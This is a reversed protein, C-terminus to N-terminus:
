EIARYVKYNQNEFICRYKHEAIFDMILDTKEGSVIEKGTDNHLIVTPLSTLDELARNLADCTNSPIEPWTTFIASPVDLIYSLGPADGWFIVPEKGMADEQWFSILEGLSEANIGTTYMGKLVFSNEVLSDREEGNIGDRFVYNCGFLVGQVLTMLIVTAAFAQLPFYVARDKTRGWIRYCVWLTYPAILFLNNMNQYTYNNSGIPTVLIILLVIMALIREQKDGSGSVYGGIGAISCIVSLILFLMMWQFISGENYYRLSFMGQGLYFRLLILIGICYLLKKLKEYHGKKIYFMISGAFICPIMYAIWKLSAAYASAIDSIMGILTYDSAEESVGALGSIMGTFSKMGYKVAIILLISGIGAAYGGLCLGTKKVIDIIRDKNLWGAFWLAVILAAETLNPFRVMVNLGLCLGASIYYRKKESVLAEYLLISGAAFLFYTLYNYLITTPCWCLSLAIMEGIFAIWAKMRRKAAYYCILALVSLLMGTYLNMGLLTDGLPLKMLLSGTVNALYTALVWMTDMRDMFRYYGLSYTTDTIDIGQNVLLLPYLFLILPFVAKEAIIMYRKGKEEWVTLTRMM